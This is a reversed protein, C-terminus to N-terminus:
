LYRAGNPIAEQKSITVGYRGNDTQAWPKSIRISILKGGPRCFSATNAWMTELESMNEAHDFVWNLMVIDYGEEFLPLSDADRHLPRSMDGVFWRMVPKYKGTSVARGRELMAPSIDVVDALAAGRDIAKRAHLGTDGGLDLVTQGKCDSELAHEVLQQYLSSVPLTEIADYRAAFRAYLEQEPELAM